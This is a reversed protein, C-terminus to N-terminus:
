FSIFCFATPEGVKLIHLVQSPLNRGNRHIQLILASLLLLVRPGYETMEISVGSPFERGVPTLSCAPLRTHDGRQAVGWDMTDRQM